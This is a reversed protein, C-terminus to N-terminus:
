TSISFLIRAIGRVFGQWSVGFLKHKLRPWSARRKTVGEIFGHADARSVQTILRFNLRCDNHAAPM